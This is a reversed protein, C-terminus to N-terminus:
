GATVMDCIVHHIIEFPSAGTVRAGEVREGASV